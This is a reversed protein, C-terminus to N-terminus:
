ILIFICIKPKPPIQLRHLSVGEMSTTMQPMPMTSQDRLLKRLEAIENKLM